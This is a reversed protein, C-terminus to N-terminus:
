RVLSSCPFISAVRFWPTICTAVACGKGSGSSPGSERETLTVVADTKALIRRETAKTIRYPVGGERWHEADVYEEAMLGRVDFIM